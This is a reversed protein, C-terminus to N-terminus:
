SVGRQTTGALTTKTLATPCDTDLRKKAVSAQLRLYAAEELGVVLQPASGRGLGEPAERTGEGGGGGAGMARGAANARTKVRTQGWRALSGCGWIPCWVCFLPSRTGCGRRTQREHLANQSAGRLGRFSQGSADKQGATAHGCSILM